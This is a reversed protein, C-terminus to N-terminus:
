QVYAAFGPTQTVRLDADVWMVEAGCQEALAQGEELPLLFLATSLCDALCSDEALVSVSRWYAAPMRTDPDIIHHYRKGDVTYFRQYDGSTVLSQGTLAVVCLYDAGDEPSQVAVNWSSGDPKAGRTCVNGGLNLMYGEPLQAAARQAAWGKAIAGVDLRQEPDALYVTGAAEDLVVTDFCIHEAAAKLAAADPLAAREPDALGAERADHWLSLVSGMAANVRGGTLAYADRCAKLLELVPPEVAVPSIGANDNVQKLGGPCDEYINFLRHYELLTRHVQEARADFDAQSGEYGQLTTVTDFVDTFLVQYREKGPTCGSLFLVPILLFALIRKM